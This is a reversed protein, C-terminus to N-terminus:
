HGGQMRWCVHWNWSQICDNNLSVFFISEEVDLIVHRSFDPSHAEEGLAWEFLSWDVRASDSMRYAPCPGLAPGKLRRLMDNSIQQVVCDGAAEM